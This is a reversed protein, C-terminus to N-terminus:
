LGCWPPATSGLFARNTELVVDSGTVSADCNVDAFCLDCSGTGLFACNALLVVDPGTYFTDGNMDGKMNACVPPNPLYTTCYVREKKDGVFANNRDKDYGSWLIYVKASAGTGTAQLQAYDGNMYYNAAARNPPPDEMDLTSSATNLQVPATWNTGGDTSLTYYLNATSANLVGGNTAGTENQYYAVHLLGNDDVDLMPFYQTKGAATPIIASAWSTAGNTSVSLYVDGQDLTANAPNPNRNSIFFLHGRRPGAASRDIDLFGHNDIRHGNVGWRGSTGLQQGTAPWSM